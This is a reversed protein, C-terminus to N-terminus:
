PINNVTSEISTILREARECQQELDKAHAKTYEYVRIITDVAGESLSPEGDIYTMIYSALKDIEQKSTAM